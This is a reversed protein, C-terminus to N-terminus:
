VRNLVARVTSPWWQKGGQGTRIGDRNLGDAIAQLSAGGERERSIREVVKAPLTSKRGLKVGKRRKARLAASIREGIKLRSYALRTAAPVTV